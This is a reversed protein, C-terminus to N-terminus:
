GESTNVYISLNVPNPQYTLVTNPSNLAAALSFHFLKLSVLFSSPNSRSTAAPGPHASLSFHRPTNM